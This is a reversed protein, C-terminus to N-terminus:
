GLEDGRSAFPFRARVEYRSGGGGPVSEVLAVEAPTWPLELALRAFAEPAPSPARRPRAVSVHPRFREESERAIGAAAVGAFVASRLGHLEGARREGVGVWLVRARRADPFAGTGELRLEPAPPAGLSLALEAALPELRERPVGGLFALTLHLTEPRPPRFPATDLAAKVREAVCAGLEPGLFLGVFTRASERAVSV